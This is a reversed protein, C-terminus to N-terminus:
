SSPLLEFAHTQTSGDAGVLLVSYGDLDRLWDLAAFGDVFAATSYADALGLDPGVVTASALPVEGPDHGAPAHIHAGREYLGSTAVGGDTVNVVGMLREREFPDQVGIRWPRAGGRM